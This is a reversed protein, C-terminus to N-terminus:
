TASITNLTGTCVMVLVMVTTPSFYSGLGGKGKKSVAAGGTEASSVSSM